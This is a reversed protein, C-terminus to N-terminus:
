NADKDEEQKGHIIKGGIAYGLLAGFILTLESISREPFVFWSVAIVAFTLWTLGRAM